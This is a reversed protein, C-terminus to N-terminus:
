QGVKKVAAHIQNVEAQSLSPFEAITLLEKQATQSVKAKTAESNDGRVAALLVDVVRQLVQFVAEVSFGGVLAALAPGISRLTENKSFLPAGLM